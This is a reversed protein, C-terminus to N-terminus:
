ESLDGSKMKLDHKWSEITSDREFPMACEPCRGQNGLGQLPFLCNTCLMGRDEIVRLKLKRYTVVNVITAVNAVVMLTLIRFSAADRTIVFMMFAAIVPLVLLVVVLWAIRRHHRNLWPSEARMSILM